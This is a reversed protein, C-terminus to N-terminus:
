VLVPAVFSSRGSRAAAMFSDILHISGRDCHPKRSGIVQGTTTIARSRKGAEGRGSCAVSFLRTRYADHPQVVSSPSNSPGTAENTAPLSNARQRTM